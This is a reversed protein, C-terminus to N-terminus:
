GMLEDLRGILWETRLTSALARTTADLPSDPRQMTELAALASGFVHLAAPNGEPLARGAAVLDVAVSGAAACAIVTGLDVAAAESTAAAIPELVNVEEGTESRFRMTASWQNAGWFLQRPYGDELAIRLSWTWPDETSRNVTFEVDGLIRVVRQRVSDLISREDALV